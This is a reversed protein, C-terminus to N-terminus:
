GKYSKLIYYGKNRGVVEVNGFIAELKEKASPAGQKKQIVIWLEGKHCLFRKSEEFMKYIVKKGARIPPNILIAAFTLNTIASFGDSCMFTVNKIDNIQANEKALQLARENIDVMIVDRDKHHDAITIGIPGYGCGLDLIAGELSPMQFRDILLRTGFDVERKSFVGADTTFTYVKGKLRYNWTRPAHKSNPNNHFYHEAM